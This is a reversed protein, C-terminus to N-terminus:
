DVKGGSSSRVQYKQPLGFKTALRERENALGVMWSGWGGAEEFMHDIEEIRAKAEELTTM